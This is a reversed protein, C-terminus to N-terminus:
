NGAPPTTPANAPVMNLPRLFEGGKGDPRPNMNEKERVEDPSLIGNNIGQVYANYRSVIDGRLLGDINFEAFHTDQEDEFFLTNQIGKEWRVLWPRLTHIVYSLMFQEASAFTPAKDGAQLLMLPMNFIRAVEEIQFKRTELFQADEPTIGTQHWKMGEELFLLRYRKELGKHHAEIQERMRQLVKEDKFKGPHEVIGGPVMGNSYLRGGSEQAALGLGITERAYSIPSLGVLGSLSLGRIHLIEGQLLVAQGGDNLDVVWRLRKTTQSREVTVRNAPIPWLAIPTGSGDRQIEAYANGRLGLWAQCMSFFDTASMEPNPKSHLLRYIPHSSVKEKGGGTLRRYVHVPLSSISDSLNRICAYVVSLTLASNYTVDVGTHSQTGLLETFWNPLDASPHFRKELALGTKVLMRALPRIM